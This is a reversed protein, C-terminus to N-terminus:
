TLGKNKLYKKKNYMVSVFNQVGELLMQDHNLKCNTWHAVGRKKIILAKVGGERYKKHWKSVSSEDIGLIEAIETYNKGSKGLKIAIYRNQQQERTSLKRGDIKKM